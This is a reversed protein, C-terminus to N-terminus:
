TSFERDVEFPHLRCDKMHVTTM